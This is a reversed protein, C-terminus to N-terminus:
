FNRGISFGDQSAFSLVIVEEVIEVGRNESEVYTNRNGNRKFSLIFM